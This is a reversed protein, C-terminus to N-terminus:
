SDYDIDTIKRLLRKIEGVEDENAVLIFNIFHDLVGLDFFGM